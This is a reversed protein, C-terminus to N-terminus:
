HRSNLRTSKRDAEARTYGYYKVFFDLARANSGNPSWKFGYDGGILHRIGRKRLETHTKASAELLGPIGMYGGIESTLGIGSAEYKHITHVLSCAPGLFVRYKNTECLGLLVDDSEEIHYM